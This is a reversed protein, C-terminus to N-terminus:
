LLTSGTAGGRSSCNSKPRATALSRTGNWHDHGQLGFSKPTWGSCDPVKWGGTCRCPPRCAHSFLWFSQPHLWQMLNEETVRSQRHRQRPDTPMEKKVGVNKPHTFSKRSGIANHDRRVIILVVIPLSREHFERQRTRM